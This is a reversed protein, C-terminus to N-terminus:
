SRRRGPAAPDRNAGDLAGEAVSRRPAIGIRPPSRLLRPAKRVVEALRSPTPSEFVSRVAVDVSLERGIRSALQTALLSHGGLRFFDDHVSVTARGLVEAFAACLMREVEDTPQERSPETSTEAIDSLAKRDLKGNALRPLSNVVVIRSPVMYRPLRTALEDQMAREDLTAGARPAVFGILARREGEGAVIVAAEAVGAAEALRTETEGLEIRHGRLKIQGDNRGHLEIRGDALFRAVDGTRYMRAGPSSSFPDPVFREATLDPRGLYGHTIGAGGIFLEGQIGPALLDGREDLVYFTTNAIPRGVLVRDLPGELREISSWVTTETPGYLNYVESHRAVLQRGLPLPLPEGTSWARVHPPAGGASELLQWLSPTADLVTAGSTQLAARLTAGDRIEDEVLLHLRAGVVLPLFLEVVSIDFASTTVAALVDSEGLGPEHRISEFLNSVARHPVGVGKPRGTSGSTYIFYALDDPAVVRGLPAGHGLRHHDCPVVGREGRWARASEGGIVLEAGADEVMFDLRAAPLSPDLPLYPAGSKLIALQAVLLDIGRPLCVGIPRRDGVVTGLAAALADARADLEAYTLQEGACTVAVASPKRRATQTIAEHVAVAPIPTPPPNWRAVRDRTAEPSEVRVDSALGQPAQLVAELVHRFHRGLRDITAEDFLDTAYHLWVDLGGSTDGVMMTLDFQAAGTPVPFSRAVTGGIEVAAGAIGLALRAWQDADGHGQEYAFLVDFLPMRSPDREPELEQVIHAFPLGQHDLADLVRRRTRDVLGHVTDGPEITARIPLPNILLGVTESLAVRTRSSSPTGVVFDRVGTWRWLLLQFASLLTVFPTTGHDRSFRRVSAEVTPDLRFSATAGRHSLRAPRPRDAPIDLRQHGPALATRWFERLRAGDAALRHQEWGVFQSHPAVVPSFAPTSGETFADIATKLDRLVLMMSWFDVAIHHTSFLLAAGSSRTYQTLRVLPGSRLDFPEHAAAALQRQLDEDSRDTADVETVSSAGAVVVSTLRGDRLDYLQRLVEHRECVATLARELVDTAIPRDLAVACHLNYAANEPVMQQHFWMAQQGVSVTSSSGAVQLPTSVPPAAISAAVRIAIDEISADRLFVTTPLCAGFQRELEHAVEVAGLSDLGLSAVPTDLPVRDGTVALANAILQQVHRTIGGVDRSAPAEDATARFGSVPARLSFPAELDDRALVDLAGEGLMSRTLRRQIKGSSTKPLAGPRLLVVSFPRVHHQEAVARRIAEIVESEAVPTPSGAGISSIRSVDTDMQRRDSGRREMRPPADSRRREHFRRELEVVICVEESGEIEVSFAASCGRRLSPHADEVTRELDQPYLNRGRIIILDKLRGTVVLQGQWIGGLDGTRLFVPGDPGLVPAQLQAVSDEPRGFYARAVSPGSVCVEGIHGAGLANGTAPDIIAVTQDGLIRGCLALERVPAGPAAPALEGRELQQPDFSAAAAGAHGGSVLLTAEALGYCPYFSEGRFGSPGFRSAFRRLTEPRVPEAGCFALSWTSLDMRDVDADTARKLCLEFAFNPGGAVAARFHSIAELWTMPRRLFTLPSMLVSHAGGALSALIGGILGMDHYPPLWSCAVTDSGVGFSTIITDLNHVLNAHSLVVGKPHGTSGSTYQIFAPSEADVAVPEFGAAIADPVADTALWELSVLGPAMAAVAPAFAAIETTALVMTSRSDSAIGQLRPLTRDLRSPDPPYAPVPIVGAYLCGLFGEVYHRGPPYLLLARDGPRAVSALQAGVRCAARHLEAFSVPPPVNGGADWAELFTFAPRRASEAVRSTIRDVVTPRATM